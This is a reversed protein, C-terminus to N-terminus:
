GPPIGATMEITIQMDRINYLYYIGVSTCRCVNQLAMCHYLPKINSIKAMCPELESETHLEPAFGSYHLVFLPL